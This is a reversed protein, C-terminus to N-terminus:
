NLSEPIQTKVHFIYEYEEITFLFTNYIPVLSTM